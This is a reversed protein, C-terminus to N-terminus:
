GMNCSNFGLSFPLLYSLAPFFTRECSVVLPCPRLFCRFTPPAPKSPCKFFFSFLAFIFLADLVKEGSINTLGFFNERCAFFKEQSIVNKGLFSFFKGSM